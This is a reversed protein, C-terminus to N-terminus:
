GRYARADTLRQDTWAIAEEVAVAKAEYVTPFLKSMTFTHKKQKGELTQWAIQGTPAYKGTFDDLSAGYVISHGKYLLSKM